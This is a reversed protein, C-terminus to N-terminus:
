NETNLTGETTSETPTESVEDLSVQQLPTVPEANNLNQETISTEGQLAQADEATEPELSIDNEEMYKELDEVKKTVAIYDESDAPLLTLTTQYSKRAERLAEPSAIKELALGLNYHAVPLDNKLNIAQSYLSIAQQYDEAQVFVSALELRLIPDNPNTQIAAVYAQVTWDYADEFVTIMNQYVQALNAWNQSESDDLTTAARAEAVAQQLLQSVQTKEAETVDAKNSLAIAILVSTSSFRRRFIDLYPNITVARQQLEYGKVVENNSLAFTSQTMLIHAQLTRATLFGVYLVVLSAAVAGVYLVLPVQKTTPSLIEPKNLIKFTFTQLQLVPLRHREEAVLCAIAIAQLTLLVINLPFLLQLAFGALVFLALPKNKVQAFKFLRYSGFVVLAWASLGLVGMTTMLTLPVNTAQSYTVAWNETANMWLPKFIQYVNRYAGVGAGILASKPSRITDLMVSWSTTFSPLQLAAPKGPLMNLGYFVLGIVLIPLTVAYLKHLKKTSVVQYLIALLTIVVIQLGIFASGSLNFIITTPLSLSFLRNILQAPGFGVSQLLSSVVLVSATISLTSLFKQGATNPLLSGGLLSIITVSLFVGGLGLLGEVPYNATFFTSALTALGFLALGTTVPTIAIKIASERVTKAIFVLTVLLASFFLLYSKTHEVFNDTLPLLLLVSLLVVLLLIVLSTKKLLTLSEM